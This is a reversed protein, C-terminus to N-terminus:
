QVVVKVPQADTKLPQDAVSLNVGILEIMANTEYDFFFWGNCPSSSGSGGYYIGDLSPLTGDSNETTSLFACINVPATKAVYYNIINGNEGLVYVYWPHNILDQRTTFEILSGRLPFNETQPLPYKEQAKQLVNVRVKESYESQQHQRQEIDDECAVFVFSAVGLLALLVIGLRNRLRM